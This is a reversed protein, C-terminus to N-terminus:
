FSITLGTFFFHREDKDTAVFSGGIAKGPFFVGYRMSLAVDSTIQWNAYLDTEFGLYTHDSTDEDFPANRNLKGYLYFNVGVQLRGFTTSHPLPFTSGGFRVMVLNSVNPAFALGTDILGFANFANDTTNPANGGFTNTTHLVRDTDGTALLLEGTLRSNNDDNFLYDLRFDVAFASINDDTQANATAAGGPGITFASSRSEGGQYTMEVGYLLNQVISGTSGFGLYFSDYRFKTSTTVGGVVATFTESDNYDMQALGYVYPRHYPGAQVSLMAGYFGRQTDDDFEPRSSDFDVTSDRTIGLVVELRVDDVGVRLTGGDIVQSLTLGNAWHVLQRGIQVDLDYDAPRGEYAEIYRGLDFKYHGRDLTPEVWDDGEGDFDDGSNFDRYTSRVRAYFDHVGDLNVQAYGVLDYQRLIHTNQDPDDIALFNFSLYGGYDVLLRQDPPIDTDVRLRTDRRIQELQREFRELAVQGTATSASLLLLLITTTAISRRNM